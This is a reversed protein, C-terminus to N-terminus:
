LQERESELLGYQEELEGNRQLTMELQEAKAQYVQCEADKNTVVTQLEDM